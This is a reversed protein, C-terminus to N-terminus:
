IVILNVRLTYIKKPDCPPEIKKKSFRSSTNTKREEEIPILLRIHVLVLNFSTGSSANSMGALQRRTLKRNSGKGM